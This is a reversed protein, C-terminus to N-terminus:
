RSTPAFQECLTNVANAGMADRTDILVHVIVTACGGELLVKHFELARCGGGRAVLKPMLANAKALLADSHERLARIAADPEALDVLQIQGALLSERAGATFGGAERTLKAASSLGAVISPEEVVMPVLRDSGNIRFNPAVAFPLAFLGFVNEIMKDATELTLLPQGRKLVDGERLSIVGAEVLADIRAAAQLRHFGPLRSDVSM